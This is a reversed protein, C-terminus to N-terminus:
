PADDLISLIYHPIPSVKSLSDVDMNKERPVWIFVISWDRNSLMAIVRVLPYTSTSAQSDLVLHVVVPNHQVQLCSIGM